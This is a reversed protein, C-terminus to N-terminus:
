TIDFTSKYLHKHGAVLNQQVEQLHLWFYRVPGWRLDGRPYARAAIEQKDQFTPHAVTNCSTVM